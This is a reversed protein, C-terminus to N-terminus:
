NIAKIIIISCQFQLRSCRPLSLTRLRALGSWWPTSVATSTWPTNSLESPVTLKTCPTSVMPSTVTVNSRTPISTEPTPTKSAMNSFTNQLLMNKNMTDMSEM